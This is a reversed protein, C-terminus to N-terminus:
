NSFTTYLDWGLSGVAIVADAAEGVGFIEAAIGVGAVGVSVWDRWNQSRGNEFNSIINITAPVGGAIAGVVTGTRSLGKVAEGIDEAALKAGSIATVHADAALATVEAAKELKEGNGNDEDDGTKGEYNSNYGDKADSIWLM